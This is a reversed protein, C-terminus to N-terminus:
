DPPRVYLAMPYGQQCAVYDVAMAVHKPEWLYRTSGHYSWRPQRQGQARNLARSAYAKVQGLILEPTEDASVVLHAHNSRVHAAHLVWGRYDCHERIAALVLRRRKRDLLCACDQM